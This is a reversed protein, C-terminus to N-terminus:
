KKDERLLEIKIDASLIEIKKKDVALLEWIEESGDDGLIELATREDNLSWSGSMEDEGMTEMRIGGDKDLEMFIEIDNPLEEGNFRVARWRGVLKKASAKVKKKKKKKKAKAGKKQLTLEDTGDVIVMERKTLLGVQWVDEETDAVSIKLGTKDETVEWSVDQLVEGNMDLQLKGDKTFEINMSLGEPLNEGNVALIEWEGVVKKAKIKVTQAFGMIPILLLLLVAVIQYKRM